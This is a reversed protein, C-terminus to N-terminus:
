VYFNQQIPFVYLLATIKEVECYMYVCFSFFFGKVEEKNWHGTVVSCPKMLAHDTNKRLLFSAIIVQLLPRRGSGQKRRGVM